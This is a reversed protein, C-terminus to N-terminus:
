GSCLRIVMKIWGSSTLRYKHFQRVGLECKRRELIKSRPRQTSIAKYSFVKEYMLKNVLTLHDNSNWSTIMASVFTGFDLVGNIVELPSAVFYEWLQMTTQDNQAISALTSAPLTGDVTRSVMSYFLTDTNVSVSETLIRTDNVCTMANLLNKADRDFYRSKKNAILYLKEITSWQNPARNLGYCYM